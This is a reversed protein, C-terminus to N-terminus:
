RAKGNSLPFSAQLRGHCRSLHTAVGRWSPPAAAAPDALPATHRRRTAPGNALGIGGLLQTAQRRRQSGGMARSRGALSDGAAAPLLVANPKESLAWLQSADCHGYRPERPIKTSAARGHSSRPAALCYQLNRVRAGDM